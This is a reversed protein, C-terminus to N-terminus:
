RPESGNQVLFLPARTSGVDKIKYGSYTCIATWNKPLICVFLCAYVTNECVYFFIVKDFSNESNSVNTGISALPCTTHILSLQKGFIHLNSKIQTGSVTGFLDKDKYDNRSRSDTVWTLRDRYVTRSYVHATHQMKNKNWQFCDNLFFFLTFWLTRHGYCLGKFWIFCTLLPTRWYKQYMAISKKQGRLVAYCLFHTVWEVMRGGDGAIVRNRSLVRLAPLRSYCIWECVCMSLCVSSHLLM